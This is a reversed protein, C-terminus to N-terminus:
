AQGASPGELLERVKRKLLEQAMRVIAPNSSAAALRLLDGYSLEHSELRPHTECFLHAAIQAIAGCVTKSSCAAILFGRMLTSPTSIGFLRQVCAVLYKRFRRVAASADILVMFNFFQALAAQSPGQDLFKRWVHEIAKEDTLHLFIIVQTGVTLDLSCRDALLAFEMVRIDKATRGM